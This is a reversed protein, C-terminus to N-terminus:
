RLGEGRVLEEEVGGDGACGNAAKGGCVDRVEDANGTDDDAGRSEARFSGRQMDLAAVALVSGVDRQM